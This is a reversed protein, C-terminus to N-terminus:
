LKEQLIQEVVVAVGDEDNTPAILKATEKAKEVANGMAVSLGAYELMPLDNYSDGFVVLEERPVQLINGLTEVTKGKDIGKSQVELFYPASRSITYEKGYEEKLLEEMAAMREVEGTILCKVIPFHIASVFDDVKQIRMRTIFQEERTYQEEPTETYICDDRYTLISLRNRKVFRQLKAPADPPMTQLFLRRDARYDWLEGGNYSLVYGGRKKMELREAVSRVGYTPRGSALLISGGLDQYRWLAECTCDSVEKRSNTLTGDLDMAIIKYKM